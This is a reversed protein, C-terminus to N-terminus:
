TTNLTKQVYKSLSRYFTTLVLKFLFLQYKSRMLLVSPIKLGHTRTLVGLRYINQVLRKEVRRLKDLLFRILVHVPILPIKLRHTRTLVGPHKEVQMLEDLLIAYSGLNLQCHVDDRRGTIYGLLKRELGNIPRRLHDLNNNRTVMGVKTCKHFSWGKTGDDRRYSYPEAEFLIEDNPLAQLFLPDKFVKIWVHDIILENGHIVNKLLLTLDLHQPGVM